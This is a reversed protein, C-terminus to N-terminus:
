LSQSILSNFQPAPIINARVMIVLEDEYDSNNVGGFLRSIVNTSNIAGPVGNRGRDRSSTKTGGLIITEGTQSTVDIYLQRQFIEPVELTNGGTFEFTKFEGIDTLSPIIKLSVTNNDLASPLVSLSLGESAYSAEGSATIVGDESTTEIEALYPIKSGNFITAPRNNKTLVSPSSLVSINNNEAVANIIASVNQKTTTASLSPQSIDAAGGSIAAQISSSSLLNNWDIGYSQSDSLRVQAITTKVEIQTLADKVLEDIFGKVRNLAFVDGQITMTGTNWSFTVNENGLLKVINEEFIGRDDSSMEGSINFDSNSSGSSGSEGESAEAEGSSTGIDYSTENGDFISPPVKLTWTAREAITVSNNYDDFVAVYGGSQAIKSIAEIAGVNNLHMNIPTNHNVDSTFSVSYGIARAPGKIADSISSGNSAVNVLNESGKKYQIPTADIYPQEHVKVSESRPLDVNNGEILQDKSENFNEQTVSSACGALFVPSTLLAGFKTYKNNLM